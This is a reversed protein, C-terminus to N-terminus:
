IKTRLIFAGKETTIFESEFNSCEDVWKNVTELDDKRKGDDVLIIINDSFFDKLLPLAPYRSNKNIIRPPGDVILLDINQNLEKIFSTEYWMYNQGKITQLKLEATIVRGIDSLNELCIKERTFEAYKNDNDISILKGVGNKEISKSALLSSVGSGLEVVLNPKHILITEVVLKLFDPSAAMNRTNPLPSNFKFISYLSQMAEMQLNNQDNLRLIKSIMYREEILLLIIVSIFGAILKNDFIYFALLIVLLYICLVKKDRKTTNRFAKM